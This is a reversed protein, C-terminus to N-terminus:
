RQSPQKTRFFRVYYTDENKILRASDIKLVKCDAYGHDRMISQIMDDVKKNEAERSELMNGLASHYLSFTYVDPESGWLKPKMGYTTSLCGTLIIAFFVVASRRLM